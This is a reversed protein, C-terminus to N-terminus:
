RERSDNYERANSQWHREPQNRGYHSQNEMAHSSSPNQRYDFRENEYKPQYPAPAPYRQWPKQRNEWKPQQRLQMFEGRPGHSQNERLREIKVVPKPPPHEHLSFGKRKHDYEMQIIPCFEIFSHTKTKHDYDIVKRPFYEDPQLQILRSNTFTPQQVFTPLKRQQNQRQNQYDFVQVPRFEDNDNRNFDNFYSQDGDRPRKRNNRFSQAGFSQNQSQQM